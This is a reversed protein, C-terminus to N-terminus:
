SAASLGREQSCEDLLIGALLLERYSFDCPCFPGRSIAFLVGIVTAYPSPIPGSIMSAVRWIILAAPALMSISVDFYALFDVQATDVGADFGARPFQEAAGFYKEFCGDSGGLAAAVFAEVDRCACGKSEVRIHTWADGIIGKDIGLVWIHIHNDDAFIFFVEIGADFVTLRM